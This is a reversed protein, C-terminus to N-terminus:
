LLIAWTLKITLLVLGRTITLYHWTNNTVSTGCAMDITGSHVISINGAGITKWITPGDGHYSVIRTYYTNVNPMYIWTSVTWNNSDLAINGVNIQDNSAGSWNGCGDILCSTASINNITGNNANSTSDNATLTTGNPLHWVGKFNSDWVATRNQQNTSSANGFYIYITDDYTAHLIPIRVWAITAGTTSSYSELEFDLKTTGDGATFLLDGATSSAMKGGSGTYKLDSDTVNVLLPFSNLTSSSVGSVKNHDITIPKRYTWSSSYWAADAAKNDNKFFLYVLGGAVLLLVALTLPLYRNLFKKFKIKNLISRM